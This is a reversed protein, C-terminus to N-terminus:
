MSTTHKARSKICCCPEHGAMSKYTGAWKDVKSTGLRQVAAVESAPGRAHDLMLVTLERKVMVQGIGDDPM